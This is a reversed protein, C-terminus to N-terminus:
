AAGRLIINAKEIRSEIEALRKEKELDRSQLLQIAESLADFAESVEAPLVSKIERIEKTVGKNRFAAAAEVLDAAFQKAHDQSM